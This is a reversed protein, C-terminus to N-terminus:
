DQSEDAARAAARKPADYKYHCPVCLSIYDYVDTYNGSVNAWHYYRTETKGCHECGHDKASGRVKEVAQHFKTMETRTYKKYDSDPNWNPNLEGQKSCAKSCFQATARTQMMKSKGCVLCWKRVYPKKHKVDTMKYFYKGDREGDVGKRPRFFTQKM